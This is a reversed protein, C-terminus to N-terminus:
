CLRGHQAQHADCAVQLQQLLNRTWKGFFAGKSKFERDLLFAQGGHYVLIVLCLFVGLRHAM